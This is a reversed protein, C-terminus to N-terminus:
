MGDTDVDFSIVEGGMTDLLNREVEILFLRYPPPLIFCCMGDNSQSALRSRVGVEPSRKSNNSFVLESGLHNGM